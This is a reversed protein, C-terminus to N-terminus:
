DLPVAHGGEFVAGRGSWWSLSPRRVRELFRGLERALQATLNGNLCAQRFLSLTDMATRPVPGARYTQLIRDGLDRTREGSSEGRTTRTPGGLRLAALDFLALAGDLGAGVAFFREAVESLSHQARAAEGRAALLHAEAHCLRLADATDAAGLRGVVAVAQRLLECTATEDGAQLASWVEGQCIAMALKANAAEDILTDARQLAALAEGYRGLHHLCWGQHASVEAALGQDLYGAADGRDLLVFARDLQRGAFALRGRDRLLLAEFALAEAEVLPCGSGARRYRRAREFASAASWKEGAARRANGARVEASSRLDWASRSDGDQLHEACWVALDAQQMLGEEPIGEPELVRAGLLQRCFAETQCRPDAELAALREDYPLGALAQTMDAVSRLPAKPAHSERPGRVAKSSDEFM